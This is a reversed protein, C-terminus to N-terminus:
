IESSKARWRRAAVALGGMVLLAMTKPEPTVATTSFSLDDFETSSDGLGSVEATLELTGTQGAYPAINVGYVEYVQGFQSVGSSLGVPSLSNGAFSISFVASPQVQWVDFELSRAKSPITGSQWISVNGQASGFAQLYVSYSGDLPGIWERNTSPGEVDIIATGASDGDAYIETVAVGGITGSWGPL